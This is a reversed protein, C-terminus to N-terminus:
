SRQLQSNPDGYRARDLALTRQCQVQMIPVLIPMMTPRQSVAPQQACQTVKHLRGHRVRIWRSHHGACVLIVNLVLHKCSTCALLRSSLRHHTPSSLNCQLPLPGHTRHHASFGSESAPQNAPEDKMRPKHSQRPICATGVCPLGCARTCIRGHACM